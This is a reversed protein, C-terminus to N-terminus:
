NAEFDDVIFDTGALLRGGFDVKQLLKVDEVPDKVVVYLQGYVQVPFFVFDKLEFMADEYKMHEPLITDCIFDLYGERLVDYQDFMVSCDVYGIALKSPDIEEADSDIDWLGDGEMSRIYFLDGVEAEQINSLLDMINENWLTVEDTTYRKGDIEITCEDPDVGNLEVPPEFAEVEGTEVFDNVLEFLERVDEASELDFESIDLGEIEMRSVNYVRLVKAAGKVSVVAM